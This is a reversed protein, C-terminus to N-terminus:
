TMDRSVSHLHHANPLIERAFWSMDFGWFGTQLLNASVMVLLTWPFIFIGEVQDSVSCSVSAQDASSDPSRSVQSAMKAVAESHSVTLMM